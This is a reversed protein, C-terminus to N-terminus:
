RRHKGVLWLFRVLWVQALEQLDVLIVHWLLGGLNHSQPALDLLESHDDVFM